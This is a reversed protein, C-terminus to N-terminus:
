LNPNVMEFVKMSKDRMMKELNLLTLPQEEILVEGETFEERIGKLTTLPPVIQMLSIDLINEVKDVLIGATEDDVKVVIITESSNELDKGISLFEGLDILALINGRLNIVGVFHRPTCPLKSVETLNIIELAHRIRICYKESGLCFTLIRVKEEPEKYDIRKNLYEARQKFIAAKEEPSLKFLSRLENELKKLRELMKERVELSRKENYQYFGCKKCDEIKSTASQPTGGCLTGSLYYCFTGSNNLYVPCLLQKCKKFEWCNTIKSSRQSGSDKPETKM